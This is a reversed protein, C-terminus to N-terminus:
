IKSAPDSNDTLKSRHKTSVQLKIRFESYALKSSQIKGAASIDHTRIVVDAIKLGCVLLLLIIIREM